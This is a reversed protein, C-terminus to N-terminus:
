AVRKEMMFHPIGVETFEEGFATYGLRTYFGMAVKRAHLVIKKYGKARCFQEAEQVLKRGIGMRQWESRVAMARLQMETNNIHHLLLCGIVKDDEQAMLIDDAHDRSLDENLLSMGLPRRLVEERLQWVHRYQPMLSTIHQISVSM